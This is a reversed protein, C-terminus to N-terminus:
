TRPCPSPSAPTTPPTRRRISSPSRRRSAGPTTPACWPATGTRSPHSSAGETPTTRRTPAPSSTSTWPCASATARSRSIGSRWSTSSAVQIRETLDPLENISFIGRNTRPILGYHITLEDSLYRGEAVKIPDIEGILDAMTIDPTALKESYRLARHVWTIPTADGKEAIRERGFKSIPHFPNDSVESGEIAPIYEDLLNVMARIIRSKAQGREGLFILDHGSLVANQVQPVVTDGYGIIGPFLDDGKRMRDILNKRLEQKVTLVKYGSRRLEALTRAEPPKAM